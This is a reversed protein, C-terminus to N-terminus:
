ESMGERNTEETAETKALYLTLARAIVTSIKRQERRAQERLRKDLSQPLSVGRTTCREQLMIVEEQGLVFLRAPHAAESAIQCFRASPAIIGDRAARGM